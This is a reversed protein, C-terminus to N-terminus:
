SGAGLSPGFFASLARWVVYAIGSLIVLLIAAHLLPDGLALINRRLRASLFTRLVYDTVSVTVQWAIIVVVVIILFGLLYEPQRTFHTLRNSLETV